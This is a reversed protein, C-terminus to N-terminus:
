KATVEFNTTMGNEFHGPLHCSLQYKGPTDFTWEFTVTQGPQIDEVESPTNNSELPDDVAGGPEIVLEHVISGDNTINFKVAGVPISTKSMEVKYETLHVDVTTPGKAGCAALAVAVLALGMIAALTKRTYM